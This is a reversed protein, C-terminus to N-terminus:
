CDLSISSDLNHLRMGFSISTGLNSLGMGDYFVDFFVYSSYNKSTVLGQRPFMVCFVFSCLKHNLFSFM